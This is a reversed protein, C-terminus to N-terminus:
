LFPKLYETRGWKGTTLHSSGICFPMLGCDLDLLCILVFWGALGLTIYLKAASAVM